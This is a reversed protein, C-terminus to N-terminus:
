GCHAEVVQAVGGGREQQRLPHSELVDLLEETVARDRQGRVSIAVHELLALPLHSPRHVRDQAASSLRWDTPCRAASDLDRWPFLVASWAGSVCGSTRTADSQCALQRLTAALPGSHGSAQRDRSGAQVTTLRSPGCPGILATCRPSPESALWCAKVRCAQGADQRTCQCEDHHSASRRARRDRRWYGVRGTRRVGIGRAAM